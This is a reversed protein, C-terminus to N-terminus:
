WLNEIFFTNMIFIECSECSFVQILSEKKVYIAPELGAVKNFSVRFCTNEQSKHLIKLLVKKITLVEPPQKQFLQLKPIFKTIRHNASVMTKCETHQVNVAITEGYVFLYNLYNLDMFLLVVYIVYFHEYNVTCVGSCIM